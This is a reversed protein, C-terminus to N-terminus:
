YGRLSHSPPPPFSSGKGSMQVCISDVVRIHLDFTVTRYLISDNVSRLNPASMVQGYPLLQIYLTCCPRRTRRSGRLAKKTSMAIVSIEDKPDLQAKRGTGQEPIVVIGPWKTPTCVRGLLGAAQAVCMGGQHDGLVMAPSVLHGHAGVEGGLVSAIAFLKSWSNPPNNVLVMQMNLAARKSAVSAKAFLQLPTKFSYSSSWKNILQPLKM